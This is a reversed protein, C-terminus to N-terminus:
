KRDCLEEVADAADAAGDNVTAWARLEGARARYGPNALLRNVALRVGRPTQFTTRLNSVRMLPLPGPSTSVTM